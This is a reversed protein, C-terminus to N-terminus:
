KQPVFNRPIVRCQVGGHPDGVQEAVDIQVFFSWAQNLGAGRFHIQRRDMGQAQKVFLGACWAMQSQGSLYQTLERCLVYFSLEAQQVPIKRFAL